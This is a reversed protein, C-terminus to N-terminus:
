SIEPMWNYEYTFTKGFDFIFWLKEKLVVLKYEALSIKKKRRADIDMVFLLCEDM